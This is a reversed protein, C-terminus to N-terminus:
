KSHDGAAYTKWNGGTEAWVNAIHKNHYGLADAIVPAPAQLVLQRLAAVRTAQPPIGLQRISPLLTRPHLPQGPRQGPFLWRNGPTTASTPNQQNDVLRLLIDALPEPVPSPPEGLRILVQDGDRLVDDTTLRVIRSAPQAYLLMLCAAARSRAPPRDDTLVRRLLALRRTQTLREGGGRIHLTPLNLRPMHHANIAWTV